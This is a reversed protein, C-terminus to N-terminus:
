LGMEARLADLSIGKGCQAEKISERLSAEFEPRFEAEDDISDGLADILYVSWVRMRRDIAEEVIQQFEEVTLSAITREM